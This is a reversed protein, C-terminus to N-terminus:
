KKGPPYPHEAIWEEFATRCQQCYSVKAFKADRVVCGGARNPPHSNPFSKEAAAFGEDMWKLQAETFRRSPLGYSVRIIEVAYPINHLECFGGPTTDDEVPGVSFSIPPIVASTASPDAECVFACLALVLAGLLIRRRMPMEGSSM